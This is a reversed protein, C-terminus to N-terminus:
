LYEKPLSIGDVYDKLDIGPEYEYGFAELEFKFYKKLAVKFEFPLYRYTINNKVDIQNSQRKHCPHCFPM